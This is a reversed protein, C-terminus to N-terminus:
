KGIWAKLVQEAPGFSRALADDFSQGSRLDDLLQDFRRRNSRNMMFNTISMGVLGAAEEDLRGELVTKADQSKQLAIPLNQQWVAVRPDGRRYTTIVLNRAVGEAFWVPVGSFGGLYAGTVVQLAVADSQTETDAEEIAIVGYADVADASWHGLWDKPLERSETMRGFESYDYRSGLAYVVMGGRILMSDEPVRLLRRVRELAEDYRKPLEALRQPPINGLAFVQEGTAREPADNPLVREWRQIARQQRQKFLEDHEAAQARAVQVLRDLQMASSSGDFKSGENIWTSILQVQEPNLPPRGGAPMRDGAQGTLKQVLLSDGATKALMSGSDGGRLLQEFSDMRLGGSARQGDIHCGNCNKLLIPAIDRSFSVTETGTALALQPAGSGSEDGTAAYEDLRAETAPGDFLAGQDIWAKLSSLQEPDVKKGGRPMDGSEIVEVIRSGRSDGPFIVTAGGVGRALAVFTAMSFQGRNNDIHCSGCKDILWPAVDTKFSVRQDAMAAQRKARDARWELLTKWQPLPDLEIGEILLLEHARQLRGHLTKSERFVDEDTVQLLDLLQKQVEAVKDAASDLEGKAFQKGAELTQENLTRILRRQEPTIAAAVTALPGAALIACCLWVTCISRAAVCRVGRGSRWTLKRSFTLM